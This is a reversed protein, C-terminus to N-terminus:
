KFSKLIMRQTKAKRKKRSCICNLYKLIIAFVWNAVINKHSVSSSKFYLWPVAIM